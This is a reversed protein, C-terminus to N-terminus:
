TNSDRSPYRIFDERVKPKSSTPDLNAQFWDIVLAISQIEIPNTASTNGLLTEGRSIKGVPGAGLAFFISFSTQLLLIDFTQLFTIITATLGTTPVFVFRAGDTSFKCKHKFIKM